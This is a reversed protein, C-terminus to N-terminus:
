KWITTWWAWFVEAPVQRSQANEGVKTVATRATSTVIDVNQWKEPRYLGHPVGVSHDQHTQLSREEKDQPKLGFHGGEAGYSGQPVMAARSQREPGLSWLSPCGGNYLGTAVWLFDMALTRSGGAGTVELNNDVM